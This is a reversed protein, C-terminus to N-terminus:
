AAPAEAARSELLRSRHQRAQKPMNWGLVAVTRGRDQYAAVFRHEEVSGELITLEAEQTPIGHVQIRADFQDTWFYPVPDHHRPGGLIRAAVTTAQDMANTRNELRRPAGTSPRAWCAVDGVAYIAEAAQGNADCLVGDSLELGSGDLWATEPVCGVAVVTVPAPLLEGDALRVGGSGTQAFDTGTVATGLLLRTGHSRHLGTLLQSMETGLQANMLTQQPGVLTVDAGLTRATAAIEAGLVGDGVVVTRRHELLRDRLALADDVTRLTHVRDTPGEAPLSRPSAGTAIVVADASLDRGAATRVRREATDLAVARDGLVFDADLAALDSPSRLHAQEPQWTGALIQKSLPPRDYPPHREAGLVTVRGEFGKRRLTQVTALGAVSAGVVLVSSPGTM